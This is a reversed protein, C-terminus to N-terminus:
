GLGPDSPFRGRGLRPLEDESLPPLDRYVADIPVSVGLDEILLTEGPGLEVMRWSGDAQRTHHEVLPRHQSVLLYHKLSPLKRYHAFKEGRDWAETARSLVEVLLVPNTVANHDRADLELPGCVVALDPYTALGTEPVRIKLDSDYPRCPSGQLPIGLALTVNMKVTAHRPTGGAMAHVEGDLFEHRTDSEQEVSLYDDYSLLKQAPLAM